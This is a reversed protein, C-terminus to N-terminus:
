QAACADAVCSLFDLGPPFRLIGEQGIEKRHRQVSDRVCGVLLDITHFNRGAGPVVLHANKSSPEIIANMAPEVFKRYQKVGESISIGRSNSDRELRRGLCTRSDDAAYVSLDFQTRLENVALVFLGEVILVQADAEEIHDEDDERRCQVFDYKPVKVPWRGERMEEIHGALLDLDLAGPVDFNFEGRKAILRDDESLTRYYRDAGLVTAPIGDNALRAKLEESFTTKGSGSPGAVGIVLLPGRTVAFSKMLHTGVTSEAAESLCKKMFNENFSRAYCQEVKARYSRRMSDTSNFWAVPNLTTSGWRTSAQSSRLTVTLAATSEAEEALRHVVRTLLPPHRAMRSRLLSNKKTSIPEPQRPEVVPSAWINQRTQMQSWTAVSLRYMSERQMALHSTKALTTQDLCAHHLPLAKLAWNFLKDVVEEVVQEVVKDVDDQANRTRNTLLHRAGAQSIFILLIIVANSFM